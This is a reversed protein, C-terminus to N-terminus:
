VANQSLESEGPDPPNTPLKQMNKQSVKQMKRHFRRVPLAETKRNRQATNTRMKEILKKDNQVESM